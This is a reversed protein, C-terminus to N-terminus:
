YATFLSRSDNGIYVQRKLAELEEPTWHGHGAEVLRASVEAISEANRQGKRLAKLAAARGPKGDVGNDDADMSDEAVLRSAEDSPYRLSAGSSIGSGGGGRSANQRARQARTFLGQLSFSAEGVMDHSGILDRDWAQLVFRSNQM